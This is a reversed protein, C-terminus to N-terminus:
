AHESLNLLIGCLALTAVLSSGGYSIFPLPMGKTPLLAVAVSVNILAQMVLSTTLGWALYRGFPDPARMGALVGRWLVVGFLAVVVLGGLLGLEEAVIAFIFDSQPHPLFYLKQVSAGLGRGFIGGSGVAILSQMAQFGSGLPDSEPDLFAFLRQRRYPVMIVLMWVAPVLTLAGIALYRWALGALFVMVFATGLMLLASGLDPELLVLGTVLGTVLACPLLLERQNVRDQKRDIQYAVFIVLVLKAVESPQFSLGGLFFWRRTGNLEPSFLVGALALIVLGLLSYVVAPRRLRRYDFHMLALMLVFGAAAAAAQKALFPNVALGRDRAAASSASYVMVLGLGLLLVITTFLWKDFALKKAM